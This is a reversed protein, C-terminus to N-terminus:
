AAAPDGATCTPRQDSMADRDRAAVAGVHGNARAGGDGRGAAVRHRCERPVPCRAVPRGTQGVRVGAGDVARLAAGRRSQPRAAVPRPDRSVFDDIVAGFWDPHHSGESLSAAFALARRSAANVLEGRDDALTVRVLLASSRGDIRAADHRGLHPLDRRAAVAFEIECTATDERRRRHLPPTRDHRPHAAASGGALRAASLARALRPRRPHRRRGASCRRAMRQRRQGSQRHPDDELRIQTPSASRAPRSRPDRARSSSSLAELQARHVVRRRRAAGRGRRRPLGALTTVLPKECLVHCGAQAAAVILPAHAAPPTAIDVADLRKTPSRRWRITTSDRASPLLRQRRACAGRRTAIPSRSSPSITAGCGRRCIATSPSTVSASCPRRSTQPRM